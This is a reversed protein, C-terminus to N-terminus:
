VRLLKRFREDDKYPGIIALNLQSQQFIEGATKQLDEITISDVKQMIELPTLIKDEIVKSTAFLAAVSRSDELELILKGKMNEKAKNLEKKDIKANKIKRLEDLIVKIADDIRAVDVGAQVVFNGVDIYREDNARVYYALGRRERVEIFLRSSMGGGLINTLVGSAYRGPHLLPFSRVGLCLHAQQTDKFTLHFAPTTQNEKFFEPKEVKKNKWGGLYKEVTGKLTDGKLPIGGAIAVVTNVPGYFRDMYSIFDERKVSKIVEKIGAIDRGLKTDGYLLNEYLDGIKRMPIDEYMNIEEIIVGKEKEIELPDFKSHLLMDSLVDVLLSLHKKAAKVYYGTHDKSTFANFEGGIGDILSAIDFASPRKQTGKFAMHELFHSLGNIKKEEYRSGVGVMVLVTVSEVGPMPITLLKLGNELTNLKYRM